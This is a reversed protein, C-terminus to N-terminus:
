DSASQFTQLHLNPFGRVFEAADMAIKGSRQLKTLALAHQRCAVVIGREDASLVHGPTGTGETERAAYIKVTENNSLLARAAPAPSLARVQRALYEASNQRFNLTREAASIKRAYTAGAAPQPIPKPNNRLVQSLLDAGIQSLIATMKGCDVDPPIPVTVQALIDGADLQENVQMICVGTTTDGAWLARAIPAAGRWRPLLSPHINVTGRPAIDLIEAPLLKGYDCVVIAEPTHQRVADVDPMDETLPLSLERAANAAPCSSLQLKRGAPRPPPCFM